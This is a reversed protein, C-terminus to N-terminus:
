KIKTVSARWVSPGEEIFEWEFQNPFDVSLKTNFMKTFDHDNVLELKEGISLEKFTKAVTQYKNPKEYERIDVKAAFEPMHRREKAISLM